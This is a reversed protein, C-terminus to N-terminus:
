IIDCCNGRAASKRSSGTMLPPQNKTDCLFNLHKVSCCNGIEFLVSLDVISLYMGLM